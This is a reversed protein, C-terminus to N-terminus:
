ELGLKKKLKSRLVNLDKIHLKIAYNPQGEVKSIDMRTFVDNDEVMPYYGKINEIRYGERLEKTSIIESIQGVCVQTELPKNWDFRYVMDGVNLREVGLEESTLM